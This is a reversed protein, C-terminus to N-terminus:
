FGVEPVGFANGVTQKYAPKYKFELASIACPDTNHEREEHDGDSEERDEGETEKITKLQNRVNKLMGMYADEDLLIECDGTGCPPLQGLMITSSVGNVRDYDSFVSANILMDTTEEFSSKALPGVDGRNIGHRDIPMLTGRHTMTDILLSLHRFNVSSERIVDMIEFHLSNRAAEIGLVANIERPDNTITRTADVNPNALIEAFNSGDTDLVWESRKEFAQTAANYNESNKVHMSVKRIREVGKTPKHTLTQELAKLAAVHDEIPKDNEQILKIRMVLESANDDSFLCRIHPNGAIIRLYLETMTLRAAHLKARDITM